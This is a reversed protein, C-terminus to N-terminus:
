NEFKEKYPVTAHRTEGSHKGGRGALFGLMAAACIAAGLLILHGASSPWLLTLVLVSIFVWRMIKTSM